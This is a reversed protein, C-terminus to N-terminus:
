GNDDEKDDALLALIDRRCDGAVAGAHGNGYQSQVEWCRRAAEEIAERIAKALPPGAASSFLFEEMIDRAKREAWSAM